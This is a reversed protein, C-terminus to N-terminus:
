SPAGAPVPEPARLAAAAIPLTFSLRAGRPEDPGRGPVPSEAWIRGGHAQVLHRTIALGLGAGAVNRARADRGRQYREFLHLQEEASIGDGEDTISVVVERAGKDPAATVRIVTGAPSYKMANDLLNRLVQGIRAEDARVLPLDPALDLRVDHTGRAAELQRASGEILTDLRAPQPDVAFTGASIRSLDLLNNVLDLLQDSAQEVFRLSETRDADTLEADAHLLTAAFGKIIGIPSRLEHSLMSTFEDKARDLARDETVDRLLLGYGMRQSAHTIPFWELRLDRRPPGPLTVEDVAGDLARSAPATYGTLGSLVPLGTMGGPESTPRVADRLAYGLVSEPSLGLATGPSTGLLTAARSSCYRIEEADAVIIGDRMSEMLAALTARERQLARNVQELERLREAEMARRQAALQVSLHSEHLRAYDLLIAAQAAIREVAALDARDPLVLSRRQGLVWVGVLEEQVRLPVLLRAGIAYWEALDHAGPDLTSLTPMPASALVYPSLLRACTAGRLRVLLAAAALPSPAVNPDDSAAVVRTLGGLVGALVTGSADGDAAATADSSAPPRILWAGDLTLQAAAGRTLLAEVEEIPRARALADSTEDYFRELARRERYLLFDVVRLLRERLPHFFAAVLLGILGRTSSADAVHSGVEASGSALAALWEVAATLQFYGAILLVVLLPYVLTARLVVHVDFLRYRLVALAVALYVLGFSAVNTLWGIAVISGGSFVQLLPGAILAAAIVCVAAGIWRLQARAIPTAPRVYGRVVIAVIALLVVGVGSWLPVVASQHLAFLTLAITLPVCYLLALTGREGFRPLTPLRTRGPFVLFMHFSCLANLLAVIYGLQDIP